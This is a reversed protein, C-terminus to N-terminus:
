GARYMGKRFHSAFRKALRRGNGRVAIEDGALVADIESDDFLLETWTGADCALADPAQAPLTHKKADLLDPGWSIHYWSQAPRLSRQDHLGLDFALRARPASNGAMTRMALIAADPTLSGGDPRTPSRQAWRGLSQLIPEFELGWPTLRYVPVRAPPPLEVQEVIGASELERLRTTLGTPTAGVAGALLDTFRKPGLMLERIVIVSWRDAVLDIAHAAACADGHDAYSRRIPV